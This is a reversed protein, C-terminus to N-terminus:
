VLKMSVGFDILIIYLVERSVSYYAVKFDIFLQHVTESYEWEKELIHLICLIQDTTSGIQQFGSINGLLKM